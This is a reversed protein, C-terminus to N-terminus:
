IGSFLDFKCGPCMRTRKHLNLFNLMKHNDDTLFNFLSMDLRSEYERFKKMNVEDIEYKRKKIVPFWFDSDSDSESNSEIVENNLEEEPKEPEEPEEAQVKRQWRKLITKVDLDLGEIVRSQEIHIFTRIDIDWEMWERASKQLEIITDYLTNMHGKHGGTMPGMQYKWNYFFRREVEIILNKLHERRKGPIQESIMSKDYLHYNSWDQVREDSHVQCVNHFEDVIHVSDCQLGTIDDLRRCHKNSARWGDDTLHESCVHYFYDATNTRRCKEGSVSNFNSTEIFETFWM